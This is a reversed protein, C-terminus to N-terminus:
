FVYLLALMIILYLVSLIILGKDHLLVEVPDGDSNEEVTLSYKMLIIMLIPVTWILRSNKYMAITTENVTWLAYFVFVLTMCVSMNKDLFSLSYKKIVSRTENGNIRKLESRRKGFGLYFSASIIVLYLWNSIVIDTVVAGYITRILFGSVLIAIDLLPVNKLGLSYLINLFFYLFLLVSSIIEFCLMNFAISATILLVVCIMSDRKSIIRSAIPRKCKTPHKKDNEIDKIDNIIYISSSILCFSLFAFISSLLRDSSFFKGSCILPVFILLNKIYHHVRFEKLYYKIKM